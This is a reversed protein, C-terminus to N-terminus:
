NMVMQEDFMKEVAAALPAHPAESLNPDKKLLEIAEAQAAKLVRTDTALDAIQLTPLGHQRSGFFDGPGRNELDYKAVEFGDNTRCLFRLRERAAETAHDSVLVCYSEAAGRGVRGRLQHLASLGYREADEIVMVTANPVDVGVEIVTTSVLLDLEHQKFQRMVEAKDAAKLKGHMLGIRAKPLLPRAVEEAYAAAAQLDSEGEEILPCVVYVQRGAAIQKGLFGFMDARKKGTVAYTKVPKRGPPMEDLVSIDLDGFMLLALTRPIPTASMVLLHPRQAKAALLGRQCVGFRHQEDTVALGLNKFTVPESLVAHTGVILQAQGSAIAELVTKRAKGKVSGTLLAVNIGLPALTKELTEAHQGALIETPAMMVSQYGNQAALYIAAAAVLTKGSGVDGQLLRNMPSKGVMDEAIEDISRQQAGTLTFPLAKYFASLPLPQMPAGTEAIDRGRMLLMGLQLVFLEEFIFRRRGEEVEQLTTPNHVKRLAEAKTPLRYKKLLFEPLPDPIEQLLALANKVCTSVAYNNLGETLPYVPTLPANSSAPLFTPAIMERGAFGGGVKGYFLYEQGVELKKVAYPNNFFTLTLGATDDACQVKFLSRGGSVRVGASKSLVEAQVACPMDYPASALPTPNSYDIYTRPYLGLLQGVTAIGMKGFQAARKPGVGKLYQIDTNWQM